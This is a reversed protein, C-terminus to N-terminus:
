VKEKQGGHSKVDRACIYSMKIETVSNKIETIPNRM